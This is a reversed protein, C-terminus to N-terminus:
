KHRTKRGNPITDNVAIYRVNESPFYKEPYYGTQIYDRGPRSLDKSIVANIRGKEIDEIMRRFDPCEFNTGGYGDDIYCDIVTIDNEAAYSTLFDKRNSISESQGATEDEKSLRLYIGAKFSKGGSNNDSIKMKVAGKKEHKRIFLQKDKKYSQVQMVKIYSNFLGHMVSRFSNNEKENFEAYIVTIKIEKELTEEKPM